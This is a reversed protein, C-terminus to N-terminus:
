QWLLCHRLFHPTTDAVRECELRTGVKWLTDKTLTYMEGGDTMLTAIGRTDIATVTAFVGVGNAQPTGPTLAVSLLGFMLSGTILAASAYRRLM